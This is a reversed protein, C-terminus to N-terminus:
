AFIYSVAGKERGERIVEKAIEMKRAFYGEQRPCNIVTAGVASAFAAVTPDLPSCGGQDVISSIESAEYLRMAEELVTLPQSSMEEFHPDLGLVSLFAMANSNSMNLEADTLVLKGTATHLTLTASM